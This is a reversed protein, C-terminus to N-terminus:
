IVSLSNQLICRKFLMYIAVVLFSHLRLIRLRGLLLWPRIWITFGVPHRNMGHMCIMVRETAMREPHLGHEQFPNIPCLHLCSIGLAPTVMWTDNCPQLCGMRQNISPHQEQPLLNSCYVVQELRIPWCVQWRWVRTKLLPLCRVQKFLWIMIQLLRRIWHSV